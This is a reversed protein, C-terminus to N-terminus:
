GQGVKKIKQYLTAPDEKSVVSRLKDMIQPESMTSMRREVPTKLPAAAPIANVDRIAAGSSAAPPPGQNSKKTPQLPQLPKVTATSTSIPGAEITQQQQQQQQRTSTSASPAMAPASGSAKVAHRTDDESPNRQTSQDPRSNASRSPAIGDESRKPQRPPAPAKREAVLPRSSSSSSSPGATRSQGQSPRTEGAAEGRGQDRYNSSTSENLRSQALATNERPPTAMTSSSGSPQRQYGSQSEQQRGDQNQTQSRMQGALGVGDFRAPSHTRGQSSGPPTSM